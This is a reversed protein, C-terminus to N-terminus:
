AQTALLILSAALILLTYLVVVFGEYGWVLVVLAATMVVNLGLVALRDFRETEFLHIAYGVLPLRRLLWAIAKFIM